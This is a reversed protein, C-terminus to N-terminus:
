EPKETRGEALKRERRRDLFDQMMRRPEDGEWATAFSDVGRQM